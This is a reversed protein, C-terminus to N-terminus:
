SNLAGRQKLAAETREAAVAAHLREEMEHWREKSLIAWNHDADHEYWFASENTQLRLFTKGDAQISVYEGHAYLEIKGSM